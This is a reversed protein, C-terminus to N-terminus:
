RCSKMFYVGKTVIFSFRDITIIFNLPFLDLSHSMESHIGNGVNKEYKVLFQGM